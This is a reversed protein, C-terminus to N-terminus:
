EVRKYQIKETFQAKGDKYFTWEAAFQDNSIFRFSANHMHGDSPSKLNGASVFDFKLEGTQPNYGSARMRPQNGAMCYHELVLKDGDLHYVTEMAAHDGSASEREVLASGNGIVEYTVHVQKGDSATATWAGALKKMREFAASGSPDSAFSPLAIAAFLLFFPFLKLHKM